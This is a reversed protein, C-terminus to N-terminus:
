PILKRILPLVMRPLYKIKLLIILTLEQLEQGFFAAGLLLRNAGVAGIL